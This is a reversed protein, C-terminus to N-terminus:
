IKLPLLKWHEQRANFFELKNTRQADAIGLPSNLVQSGYVALKANYESYGLEKLKELMKSKIDDPPM